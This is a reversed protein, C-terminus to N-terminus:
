LSALCLAKQLVNLLLYYKVRYNIESASRQKTVSIVLKLIVRVGLPGLGRLEFEIIPEIFM